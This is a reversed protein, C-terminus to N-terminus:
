GVKSKISCPLDCKTCINRRYLFLSSLLLIFVCIGLAVSLKLIAGLYALSLLSFGIYFIKAEKKDFGADWKPANFKFKLSCNQKCFTCIKRAHLYFWLFGFWMTSVVAYEIRMLFLGVTGILVFMCFVTFITIQEFLNFSKVM